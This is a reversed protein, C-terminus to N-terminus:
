NSIFSTMSPSKSPIKNWCRADTYRISRKGYKLTSNCTLFINGSYAQRTDYINYLILINIFMQCFKLSTAFSLFLYGALLSLQSMYLCVLELYNERNM